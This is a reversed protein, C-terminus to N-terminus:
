KKLKNELLSLLREVRYALNLNNPIQKNDINGIFWQLMYLLSPTKFDDEWFSFTADVGIQLMRYKESGDNGFLAAATKTPNDQTTLNEVSVIDPEEDFVSLILSIDHSGYDWLPSYSKRVPGSGWGQSIVHNVFEGPGILKYNGILKIVNPNFLHVYNVVFARNYTEALNQLVGIERIDMTCPKECIVHKKNILAQVAIHFHTEPPTAIIVTDVNPNEVVYQWNHTWNHMGKPRVPLNNYSGPNQSCCLVVNSGEIENISSVYNKGWRGLGILGFNMGKSDGV